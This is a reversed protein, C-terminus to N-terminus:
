QSSSPCLAFVLQAQGVKCRITYSPRAVSVQSAFGLDQDQLGLATLARQEAMAKGAGWFKVSYGFQEALPEAWQQFEQRTRCALVSLAEACQLLM